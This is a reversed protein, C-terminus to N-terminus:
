GDIEEVASYQKCESCIVGVTNKNVSKIAGCNKCKVIKSRQAKKPKSFSFPLNRNDDAWKSEKHIRENHKKVGAEPEYRRGVSGPSIEKSGGLDSQKIGKSLDKVFQNNAM